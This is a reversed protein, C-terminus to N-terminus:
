SDARCNTLWTLRSPSHNASSIISTLCSAGPQGGSGSLWWKNVVMAMLRKFELRPKLMGLVPGCSAELGGMEGPLTVRNSVSAERRIM